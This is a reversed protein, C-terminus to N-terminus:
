EKVIKIVEQFTNSVITILYVGSATNELDVNFGLGDIKTVEQIIEGRLNTIIIQANKLQIDSNLSFLGTSPNPSVSLHSLSQHDNLSNTGTGLKQYWSDSGAIAIINNISASANFDVTGTFSGTIYVNSSEDAYIGYGRTYAGVDATGYNTAWNFTGNSNLAIIYADEAGLKTLTNSLVVDPNADMNNAMEGTIYVAGSNTVDMDMFDETGVSGFTSVWNLSGSPSLQVVFVDDSGNSTVNTTGGNTDFNCTSIFSGHVYIFGNDDIDISRGEDVAIGGMKKAFVFDNSSDLKLVFIDNTGTLEVVPVGPNFDTNGGFMGTMFQDGSSADVVIDRGRDSSISGITKSTVYNGTASLKLMFIDSSGNSTANQIGAGPDFDVTTRFSGFVFVAGDFDDIDIGNGEDIDTGGISKAWDLQGSPNVKVVFVDEMGASTLNTVGGDPNFDATGNFTGTIYINGAQDLVIESPIDEASGGFNKAWLFNGQPSTKVLFIDNGGNSTLNGVAPSNDFDSTSGFVGATYVNGAADVAMCKGIASAGGDANRTWHHNPMQAILSQSAGILTLSLIIKKM